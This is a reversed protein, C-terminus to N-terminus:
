FERRLEIISVAEGTDKRVIQIQPSQRGSTPQRILSHERTDITKAWGRKPDIPDLILTAVKDQQRIRIGLVSAEVGNDEPSILHGPYYHQSTLEEWSIEEQPASTLSPVARLHQPRQSRWPFVQSPSVQPRKIPEEFPLVDAAM